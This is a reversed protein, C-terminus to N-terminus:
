IIGFILLLIFILFATMVSAIVTIVLANSNKQNKKKGSGSNDGQNTPTLVDVKVEEEQLIEVIILPAIQIFVKFGDQTKKFYIVQGKAKKIKGEPTLLNLQKIINFAKASGDIIKLGVPDNISLESIFKGRVPSLSFEGKLFVNGEAILATKKIETEDEIPAPIDKTKEKIDNEQALLMAPRVIEEFELSTTDEPEIQLLFDNSEFAFSVMKEMQITVYTLDKNELREVMQSIIAPRFEKEFVVNMKTVLDKKYDNTKFTSNVEVFFSKWSDAISFSNSFTLNDKIISFKEVLYYKYKHLFLLFIGSMSNKESLLKGKIVMFDKLTGQVIKKARNIDGDVYKMIKDIKTTIDKLQQAEDTM